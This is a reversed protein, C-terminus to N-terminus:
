VCGLRHGRPSPNLGVDTWTHNATPLTAPPNAKESYKQKGKDTDRWRQQRGMREKTVSLIVKAVYMSM